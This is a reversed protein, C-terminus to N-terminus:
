NSTSMFNLTRLVIKETWQAQDNGLQSTFMIVVIQNRGRVAYDCDNSAEESHLRKSDKASVIYARGAQQDEFFPIIM